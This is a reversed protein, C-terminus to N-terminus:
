KRKVKEKINKPITITVTTGVGITSDIVVSANMLSKLRRKINQIGVHSRGDDKKEYIDFGVGNDEIIVYINDEDEKTIIKVTGGEPRQNVGYKIANEVIPQITLPPISFDTVDTYYEINLRDGFRLQEIDIYNKVHGFEKEFSIPEKQTLSDMNARLYSSFKVIASEAKKPDKKTLYKITNLANYLFHPQIQSLMLTMNIESLEKELEAAKQARNYANVTKIFHVLLMVAIFMMCSTPMIFSVASSIFGNLYCNDIVIAAATICYIVLYLIAFREKRAVAGSLKFIMYVDFIYAVSQLWMYSTSIFIYDYLFYPVFACVLFSLAVVVLTTNNVKLNLIKILYMMMCLKIIYTSVYVLSPMIEYSLNFFLSQSVAYGENTILMRFIFVICLLVLWLQRSLEKQMVALLAAGICFFAVIGILLYRLAIASMESKQYTNYTSLVPISTLGSSLDCTVEVVVECSKKPNSIIIPEGYTELVSQTGNIKHTSRNSFVQEGDVFVRCEGPLNQVSVLIPEDSKVGTLYTRYSAIGGNSFTKGNKEYTTWSSPVEVVLDPQPIEENSSIIHKDWFFEWEGALSLNKTESLNYKGIDANANKISIDNLTEPSVYSLFPLIISSLLTLFVAVVCIVSQRFSRNMNMGREHYQYINLMISFWRLNILISKHFFHLKQTFFWSITTCVCM